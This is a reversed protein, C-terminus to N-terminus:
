RVVRLTKPKLVFERNGQYVIINTLQRPGCKEVFNGQCSARDCNGPAPAGISFQIGGCSLCQYPTGYVCTLECPQKPKQASM